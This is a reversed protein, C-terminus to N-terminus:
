PLPVRERLEETWNQVVYIESATAKEDTQEIEKLMLFRQGGPTIDYARTNDNGYYYPGAFLVQPVGASFTPETGVEVRMLRTGDSYFLERGDLAWAAEPALALM